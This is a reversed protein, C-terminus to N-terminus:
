LDTVRNDTVRVLCVIAHVVNGNAVVRLPHNEIKLLGFALARAVYSAFAHAAVKVLFAAPEVADKRSLCNRREVDFWVPSSAQTKADDLGNAHGSAVGIKYKIAM